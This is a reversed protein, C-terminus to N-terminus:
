AKLKDLRKGGQMLNGGIVKLTKEALYRDLSAKYVLYRGGQFVAELQGTYILNYVPFKTKVRLTKQVEAVTLFETM